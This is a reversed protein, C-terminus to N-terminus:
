SLILQSKTTVKTLTFNRLLGYETASTSLERSTWVTVPKSSLWILSMSGPIILWAQMWISFLNIPSAILRYLGIGLVIAGILLSIDRHYRRRPEHLFNRLLSLAICGGIGLLLNLNDGRLIDVTLLLINAIVAAVIWKKLTMVEAPIYWSRMVNESTM